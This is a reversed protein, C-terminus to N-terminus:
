SRVRVVGVRIMVYASHAAKGVASVAQGVLVPDILDDRGASEINVACLTCFSCMLDVHIERGKSYSM